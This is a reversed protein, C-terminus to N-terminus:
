MRGGSSLLVAGTDPGPGALEVSVSDGGEGLRYIRQGGGGGQCVMCDCSVPLWRALLCLCNSVAASNLLLLQSIQNQRVILM